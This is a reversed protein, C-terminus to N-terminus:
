APTPALAALAARGLRVGADAVAEADLREDGRAVVALIAAARIGRRRAVALVAATELDAALAGAPGAGRRRDYFLDRSLVTGARDAHAALEATLAEDGPMREPAGLGRSAGDAAIVERVAVLDGLAAGGDLATCTGVRIASRLGLDCLEEVVIAASPGGIGTSQVTLPEGDLATGTYGWLGRNHNFMRAPADCLAQALALARGPDGPLLAREALPATPHVHITTPAV